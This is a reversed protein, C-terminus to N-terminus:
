RINCKKSTFILGNKETTEILCILDDDHEQPTKSFYSIDDHIAIIGPLREIIQDMQM